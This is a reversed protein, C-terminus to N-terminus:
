SRAAPAGGGTPDARSESPWRTASTACSFSPAWSPGRRPAPNASRAPRSPSRSPPPDATRRVVIQVAAIAVRPRPIGRPTSSAGHHERLQAPSGEIIDQSGYDDARLSLPRPPDPRPNELCPVSRPTAVCAPPEPASPVRQCNAKAGDAPTQATGPRVGDKADSRGVRRAGSLAYRMTVDRTSATGASAGCPCAGRGLHDRDRRRHTFNM